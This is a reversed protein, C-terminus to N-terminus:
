INSSVNEQPELEQGKRGENTLHNRKEQLLAPKEERFM